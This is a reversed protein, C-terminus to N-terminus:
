PAQMSGWEPERIDGAKSALRTKIAGDLTTTMLAEAGNAVTAYMILRSNPAFSPSEDAVTDTLAVVKGSSLEMVHLKFAGGIRSIFALWRGDRSLSPSINYSGNFTIREAAGGTAAMRYIQPSGGRDSVFYIHRGDPSYTGETDIGQSQILRKPEGGNIDLSYIQSSGDRSLTLLLSRGDPAWAPASNSGKFSALLRRRGSTLEHTYVVPKRSEFSVYALQNGSPHWAPSIIPEPSSLAAQANEGDADAIWLQHRQGSKTVYAIRSAFAGKEGTIQEYVFDAVRHAALRLDQRAFSLGGLDRQRVTDWLRFRVDFRGDALRVVSGTVAFDAGRQKNVAFDIRQTEDLVLSAADMLRFQGSRELDAAIVSSVKVPAQDEGKFGFVTGPFQTMGVGTVDVRFQAWAPLPLALAAFRSLSRRTAYFPNM